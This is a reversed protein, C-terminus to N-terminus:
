HGLHPTLVSSSATENEAGAGLHELHPDFVSFISDVKAAETLPDSEKEQPSVPPDHGEPM